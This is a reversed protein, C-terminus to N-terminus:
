EDCLLTFLPEQYRRQEQITREGFWKRSNGCCCGSCMQRTNVVMGLTRPSWEGETQSPNDKGLSRNGWYNQRAKMLRERHHRRVARANDKEQM